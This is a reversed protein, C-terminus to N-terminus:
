HYDHHRLWISVNEANSARHSPFEATVPSDEDFLGTVPLKSTKKSKRRFLRNLLCDHSQHNSVSERGMIVDNYHRNYIAPTHIRKEHETNTYITDNHWNKQVHITGMDKLTIENASPCDYLHGLGTHCRHRIHVYKNHSDGLLQYCLWFFRLVATHM